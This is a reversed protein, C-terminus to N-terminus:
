RDHSVSSVRSYVAAAVALDEWAEGVSKFVRPRGPTVDVRGAVLDALDGAVIGDVTGALVVDGATAASARSEVVVTARRMLADDLERAEPEHSGVAVVAVEPKLGGSDFLPERATTCCAIVDAEGLFGEGQHMSPRGGQAFGVVPRGEKCELGLSTATRAVAAAAAPRRAVVTVHTLPRVAALAAVHAHAQPGAGFVVLRSATPPALHSVALASVAATRVATLAPADLQALPVLTEGDFLVYVGNIRPLGRTPNDPAITVVKVGAHSGLEAPMLLVQGATTDIIQRPPTHGPQALAGAIAAVAAPYPLADALAAGSIWLPTDV